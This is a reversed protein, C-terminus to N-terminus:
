ILWKIEGKINNPVPNFGGKANPTCSMIRKATFFIGKIIGHERIAEIGYTSCSPIYKCSKPFIPSIFMKYFYILGYCILKFPYTVITYILNVMSEFKSKQKVTFFNHNKM